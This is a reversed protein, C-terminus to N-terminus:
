PNKTKLLPVAAGGSIVLKLAEEVSVGCEILEEKPVFVFNGTAPNPPSPVFVTILDRGTAASLEWRGEQTVFGLAYIGKRPYEVFVVKKFVGRKDGFFAKAIDQVSGYVKNFFPISKLVGEGVDMFQRFFLREAALGILMVFFIVFVGILMKALFVQFSADIASMPLLRFVPNVVFVDTMKVLYSIVVVTIFLPALVLIGSIFHTRFKSM